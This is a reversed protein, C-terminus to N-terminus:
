SPNVLASIVTAITGTYFAGNDNERVYSAVRRRLKVSLIDKAFDTGDSNTMEIEVGGKTGIHLKRFDGVLFKGAPIGTNEIVRAPISAQKAHRVEIEVRVM